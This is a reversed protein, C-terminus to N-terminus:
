HDQIPWLVAKCAQQYPSQPRHEISVAAPLGWVLDSVQFVKDQRKANVQQQMRHRAKTLNTTLDRMLQARDRVHDDVDVVVIDGPIHDLLSTPPHGYVAEYPTM